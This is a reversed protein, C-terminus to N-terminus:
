AFLKAHISDSQKNLKPKLDRIFFMEFISCDFKSLCKRLVRFNMAIECPENRHQERVHNGIVSWKHEEVCQHLHRSTFSVYDADCLDCEFFYVVNQQNVIPPKPEKPKLEDKIKRSTFLPHVKTNIKRSLDSLQERLKNASRQDKFPLPIGVPTECAQQPRSTSGTVKMKIFSRITNQILPEPYHLRTFIEKLRECEQYVCWRTEGFNFEDSKSKRSEM